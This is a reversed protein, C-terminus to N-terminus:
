RPKKFCKHNERSGTSLPIYHKGSLDNSCIDNGVQYVSGTIFEEEETENFYQFLTLNAHARPIKFIPVNWLVM